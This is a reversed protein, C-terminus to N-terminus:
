DAEFIHWVWEIWNRQRGLKRLVIWFERELHLEGARLKTPVVILLQHNYAPDRFVPLFQRLKSKEALANVLRKM